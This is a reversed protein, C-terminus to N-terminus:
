PTLDYYILDQTVVTTSDDFDIGGGSLANLATANGTWRAAGVDPLFWCFASFTQAPLLPITISVDYGVKVAEGSVFGNNFSENGLNTAQVSIVSATALLIKFVPWSSQLPSALLRMEPDITLQSIYQQYQPPINGALGTTDLYYYVGADTKRFYSESVVTVASYASSDILRQYPIGTISSTGSYKVSRTGSVPGASDTKTINYKYYAGENNPFYNTNDEEGNGGNVSDDSDCSSFLLAAFFFLIIYCINKM